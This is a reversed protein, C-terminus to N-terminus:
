PSRIRGSKRLRRIFPIPTVRSTVWTVGWVLCDYFDADYPYHPPDILGKMWRLFSSLTALGIRSLSIGVLLVVEIRRIPPKLSTPSGRSISLTTRGGCVGQNQHRRYRTEPGVLFFLKSPILGQTSSHVPFHRRTNGSPRLKRSVRQNHLVEASRSESSALESM